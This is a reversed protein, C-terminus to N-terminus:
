KKMRAKRERPLISYYVFRNVPVDLGFDNALKVVTGNQYEIESPRGAWVDRTLSATAEYNFTEIFSVAQDVYDKEINIGMKLALSYVENLLEFMMEKTEPNSRLEGYTTLTVAMLGSLNISIFKKWLEADVDEALLHYIGADSFLESLKQVRETKENKLEGFVIKPRVGKHRIIGPGEVLSFIRCLGNIVHRPPICDQLEKAAMVGNQLPLVLTDAALISNLDPGIEKVQWSKVALLILDVKGMEKLDDFVNANEVRFDGDVSKVTLGNNKIAWYHEGRALFRVDHGALALKGGFYGGVGGTGIIAIKM